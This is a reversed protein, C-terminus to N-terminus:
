RQQWHVVAKLGLDHVDFIAYDNPGLDLQEAATVLEAVIREKDRDMAVEALFSNTVRFAVRM